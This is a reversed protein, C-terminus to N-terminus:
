AVLRRVQLKVRKAKRGSEVLRGVTLISGRCVQKPVGRLDGGRESAEAKCRADVVGTRRAFRFHVDSRRFAQEASPAVPRWGAAVPDFRSDGDVKFM